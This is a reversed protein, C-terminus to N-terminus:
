AWEILVQGGAVAEGEGVAVHAVTGDVPATVESEMKMAELVLLTQGTTVEAGDEVLVKTVTGAITARLIKHEEAPARVHTPQAPMSPQTSSTTIGTLSPAPEPEVEVEVDFATGNVTVTLKM